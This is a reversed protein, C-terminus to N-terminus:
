TFLPPYSVTDPSFLSHFLGLSAGLLLLAPLFASLDTLLGPAEWTLATGWSLYSRDKLIRTLAPTLDLAEQGPHTLSSGLEM